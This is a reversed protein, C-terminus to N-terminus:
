SLAAPSHDYDDWFTPHVKGQIRDWRADNGVNVGIEAASRSLLAQQRVKVARHHGMMLSRALSVVDGQIHTSAAASVAVPELVPTDQETATATATATQYAVGRYVLNLTPLQVPLQKLNRFRWDLGRFKGGVEGNVVAVAPPNYDYALGRYFLKM